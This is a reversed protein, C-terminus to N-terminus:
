PTTPQYLSVIKYSRGLPCSINKNEIGEKLSSNGFGNIFNDIVYKCIESESFEDNSSKSLDKARSFMDGHVLRKLFDLFMDYKEEPNKAFFDRINRSAPCIRLFEDPPIPKYLIESLPYIDM